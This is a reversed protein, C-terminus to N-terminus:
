LDLELDLDLFACLETLNRCTPWTRIVELKELQIAIGTESIIHGLFSVLRQFIKAANPGIEIFNPLTVYNSGTSRGVTLFTFNRFDLIAAAAMNYFRFIVTATPAIEVFSPM